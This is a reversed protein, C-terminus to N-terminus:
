TGAHLSAVNESCMVWTINENQM